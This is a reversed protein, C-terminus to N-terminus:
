VEYNIDYRIVTNELNSKVSFIISDKPAYLSDVEYPVISRYSTYITISTQTIQM